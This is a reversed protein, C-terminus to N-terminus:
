RVQHSAFIQRRGEHAWTPSHEVPVVAKIRVNAGLTVYVAATIAAVLEPALEDSPAPVPAAAPAPPAKTAAAAVRKFYFGMIELLSWILSLALFVVILGNLQFGISELLRPHEPLAAAFLPAIPIDIHALM